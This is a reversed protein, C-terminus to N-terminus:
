TSVYLVYDPVFQRSSYISVKLLMIDNEPPDNQYDPHKCRQVITRVTGTKRLDHTGFVVRVPVSCFTLISLDDTSKRLNNQWCCFLAVCKVNRKFFLKHLKYMLNFNFM